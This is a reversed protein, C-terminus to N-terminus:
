RLLDQTLDAMTLVFGGHMAAPVAALFSLSLFLAFLSFAVGNQKAREGMLM